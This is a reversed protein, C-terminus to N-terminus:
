SFVPLWLSTDNAVERTYENRGSFDGTNYKGVAAEYDGSEIYPIMGNLKFFGSSRM